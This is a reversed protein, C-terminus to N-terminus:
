RRGGAVERDLAQRFRERLSTASLDRQWRPDLADRVADAFLNASLVLLFMFVFAAGLSWWVVPERSMELRAANIMTGFSNMTPDVGVGVYSLVAEALVLGSFGLVTTIIVIHLVNPLIHRMMIMSHRVGVARAAEVFELERLKLTEGRLLRCLGTWSTVGLIICLFLLRFDARRSASDFIEPHTDMYVQMMLVAAAILLVGPISSLTTYLYQIVDDVRGKFYGAMIGLALALPLTVLTTVTGIVLGTRISKLSQYLVDQGVKDTGLVHYAGSMLFLPVLIGLLGGLALFVARLPVDHSATWVRRSMEAFPVHHRHAAIGTAVSVALVWLMAALAAGQTVRRVIDGGRQMAPDALHAGGHRLRPHERRQTGDASTVTEKTLGHTAFPASFTREQSKRLTETMVDLVSLIEAGRRAEGTGKVPISPAADFHLSDLIGVGAFLALVTASIMGRRSRVVKRWPASLTENGRAYWAFAVVCAVMAFVLVDTWLVVAHVM